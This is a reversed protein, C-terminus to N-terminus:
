RRGFERQTWRPAFREDRFYCARQGRYCTINEAPSYRGRWSGQHDHPRSSPRYNDHRHDDSIAGVIAAGIGIAAAAGLVAGASPASAGAQGREVDFRAVEGGRVVCRFGRNPGSRRELVGTVVFRNQNPHAVTLGHYGAANYNDRGFRKCAHRADRDDFRAEAHGAGLMAGLVVLCVLLRPM